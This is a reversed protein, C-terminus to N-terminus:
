MENARFISLQIYIWENNSWVAAIGKENIRSAAVFQPEVYVGDDVSTYGWAEGVRYAMLGKGSANMEDCELVEYANGDVDLAMWKKGDYVAAYGGEELFPKVETYGSAIKEGKTDLMVYCDGKRAFVRGAFVCNRCGDLKLEDYKEESIANFEKDVLMWKGDKKVGAIGNSFVTAEEYMEGVIEENEDIYGFGEECAMLAYGDRYLSLYSYNGKPTKRIYGNKDYYRIRGDKYGSVMLEEGEYVDFVADFELNGFQNTDSYLVSYSDNKLVIDYGNQLTEIAACNNGIQTYDGKMIDYYENLQESDPFEKVGDKLTKMLNDLDNMENYYYVYCLCLRESNGYKQEIAEAQNKFGTMDGLMIYCEAISLKVDLSPDVEDAKKFEEIAEVYFEDSLYKNANTMYVAYRNDIPKAGWVTMAKTGAVTSLAIVGILCMVRGSIRNKKERM